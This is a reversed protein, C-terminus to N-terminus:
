ESIDSEPWFLTLASVLPKLFPLRLLVVNRVAYERAVELWVSMEDGPLPRVAGSVEAQGPKRLNLLELIQEDRLLVLAGADNAAVGVAM